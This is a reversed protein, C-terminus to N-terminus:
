PCDDFESPFAVGTLTTSFIREGKPPTHDMDATTVEYAGLKELAELVTLLRKHSDKYGRIHFLYLSGALQGEDRGLGMYYERRAAEQTESEKTGIVYLGRAISCKDASQLMGSLDEHLNNYLRMREFLLVNVEEILTPDMLTRTDKADTEGPDVFRGHGERSTPLNDPNPESTQASAIGFFFLFLLSTM